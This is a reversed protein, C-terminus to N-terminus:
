IWFAPRRQQIIHWPSIRPTTELCCFLIVVSLLDVVFRSESGNFNSIVSDVDFFTIAHEPTGIAVVSSDRSYVIPVKLPISDSEQIAM